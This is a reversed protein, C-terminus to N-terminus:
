LFYSLQQKKRSGGEGYLENWQKLEAMVSGETAFSAAVQNKAQRMDEMNLARLSISKEEKIEEVTTGSADETSEGKENKQKKKKDRQREHQLFERVPRYAATVCLNKLDSGSYGETMTAIEKFDLNEVKEKSLLTRLIKERNEVSPLDVMIRREFRRVIAEDLDFPRNTAALVLIREGPKTLLGDWHTMFENKIKRMAEHEGVRTRQGLMSDVEDVFIITPSVKAALTFLARVNKEDEGFWKSTITSMSVNIFSAGAENAIAKALMTKGTGPPGFLLIGRCPKLLGGASFLDPRRLPLMVLEHLSEKTEELSGIDSFTVGIQDAPIVEPRIRKEFENDPPVEAPKSIVASDLETKTSLNPKEAEGKNESTPNESKSEPKSGADGKRDSEKVGEANTELKITGKGGNKSEQFISLGHSLSNASIVLKGNRYEPDKNNMLHYSLASVVIEEIYNSLAMTDGYCISGLDECELDNAALVEAIHNKNDQIKIKRMDEELQSKWNVLHNEDEPPRIEINYPFLLSLRDELEVCDDDLDLMRSGLVLVPGTLKKLMREFLKYLRPSQLFLKDVDRVYLIICNTQSITVLAKYVSQLLLKEDFSWSCVRKPHAPSSSSSLGSISSMDSSVSSTRRPRTSTNAGETDRMTVDLGSRQGSLTGRNDDKYPLMSFSGLFSSVREVTAESISRALSSDKKAIGYKSQMKLSFDNLDLLLLKAEFHHALAKALMQQYLEAPGSLLIARSAPSLNRTHKSVDLHKLHVCAASTLLVRTKESLFYPFDEFTAKSDKGDVVLRLVEMELKGASIGDAEASGEGGTWKGVTSSSVLGLGVGVGVGISLASLFVHKQEM